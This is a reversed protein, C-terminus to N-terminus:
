ISVLRFSTAVANSRSDVAYDTTSRNWSCRVRNDDCASDSRLSAVIASPV